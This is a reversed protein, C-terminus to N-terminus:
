LISEHGGDSYLCKNDKFVIRYYVVLIGQLGGDTLESAVDKSQFIETKPFDRHEAV